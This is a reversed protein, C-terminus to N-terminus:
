ETVIKGIAIFVFGMGFMIGGLILTYIPTTIVGPTTVWGFLVVNTQVAGIWTLIKAIGLIVFLPGTIWICIVGSITSMLSGIVALIVAVIEMLERM